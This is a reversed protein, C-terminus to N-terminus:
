ERINVLVCKNCSAMMKGTGGYVIFKVTGKCGVVPCAMMGHGGNGRIHGRRIGEEKVAILARDKKAQLETPSIDEM